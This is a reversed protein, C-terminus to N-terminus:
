LDDNESLILNSMKNNNNEVRNINNIDTHLDNRVRSFLNEKSCLFSNNRKLQM